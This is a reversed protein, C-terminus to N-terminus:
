CWVKLYCFIFHVMLKNCWKSIASRASQETAGFVGKDFIHPDAGFTGVGFVGEEFTNPNAGFTGVGFVGDEFSIPHAGFTREINKRWCWCWITM